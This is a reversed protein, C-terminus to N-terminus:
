SGAWWMLALLAVAILVTAMIAKRDARKMPMAREQAPRKDTRKLMLSIGTAQRYRAPAGRKVKVSQQLL